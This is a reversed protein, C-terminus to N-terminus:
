TAGETPETIPMVQVSVSYTGVVGVTEFSKAFEIVPEVASTNEVDALDVRVQIDKESLRQIESKVGRVTITLQKTLCEWTMGEALNLPTFETITFERTALQPFSISVKATHLNSVNRVGEPLDIDFTLETEATIEALNITAIQLNELADLAAASGSVTLEMPDIVLKCTKETAGGGDVLTVVLPIKKVMLVPLYVRVQDVNTTIYAADVPQNQADLLAYRYSEYITQTRGECNITISAHDIRDVVDEPGSIQVYERDLELASTDKIYDAPVDGQYTVEVPVEKTRRRAVVVTVRDPNKQTSLAGSPINGPYSVHYTLNHEGPDYIEALDVVVQLNGANVQSVDQRSGSVTVNVRYDEKSLLMLGRESLMSEGSLAVELNYFTQEHGTSVYTVVYMWLGFAICFSLLMSGVKSRTM